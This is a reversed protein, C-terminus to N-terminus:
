LSASIRLRRTQLGSMTLALMRRFVRMINTQTKLDGTVLSCVELVALRKTGPIVIIDDGQALIWALTIQAPTIGKQKALESIKDVLALNKPFNEASYRPQVCPDACGGVARRLM